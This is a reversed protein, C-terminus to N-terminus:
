CEKGAVSPMQYDISQSVRAFFVPVGIGTVQVEPREPTGLHLQSIDDANPFIAIAVADEFGFGCFGQNEGGKTSERGAEPQELSWLCNARSGEHKKQAPTRKM